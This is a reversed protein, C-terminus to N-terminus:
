CTWGGAPRTRTPWARPEQHREASRRRRLDDGEDRAARVPAQARIRLVADREHARRDGHAACLRQELLVMGRRARFQARAPAPDHDDRRFRRKGLEAAPGLRSHRQYAHASPGVHDHTATIRCSRSTSASTTQFRWRGEEVLLLIAAAVFQKRISAADFVTDPDDSRQARPRGARVRPERGAQRRALRRGRVRADGNSGASSRTSRPPRTRLRHLRPASCRRSSFSLASKMLLRRGNPVRIGSSTKVRPHASLSIRHTRQNGHSVSVLYKRRRRRIVLLGARASCRPKALRM